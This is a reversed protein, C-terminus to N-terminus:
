GSLEGLCPHVTGSRGVLIGVGFFGRDDSRIQSGLTMAAALVHWDPQGRKELRREAL